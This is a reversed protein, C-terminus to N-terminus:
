ITAEMEQKPEFEEINTHTECDQCFKENSDLDYTDGVAEGGNINVWIKIEVNTGKCDACRFM